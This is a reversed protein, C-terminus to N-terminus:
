QESDDTLDKSKTETWTFKTKPEEFVEHNITNVPAGVTNNQFNLNTTVFSSIIWKDSSYPVLGMHPHTWNTPFVVIKGIEAEVSYDHIGFNTGGGDTITNLYVLIALVRTNTRNDGNPENIDWPSGDVHERYFGDNKFYRQIRLGTIDLNPVAWFQPFMQMYDNICSWIRTYIYEQMLAYQHFHRTSDVTYIAPDMLGTDMCRKISTNVGGITPGQSFFGPNTFDELLSSVLLECKEVDLAEKYEAIYSSKGLPFSAKILGM